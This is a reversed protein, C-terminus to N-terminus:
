ENEREGLLIVIMSIELVYVPMIYRIHFNQSTLLAFFVSSIFAYLIITELEKSFYIKRKNIIVNLFVYITIIVFLIEFYLIYMDTFLYHEGEMRTKTWEYNGSTNDFTFYYPSIMNKGFDRLINSIINPFNRRFATLVIKNVRHLDGDLEYLKEYPIKYNNPGQNSTIADEYTIVEKVDEPLYEYIQPLTTGIIREYLYMTVSPQSRKNDESTQFIKQAIKTSTIGLVLIAVLVLMKQINVKQKKILNIIIDIVIIGIIVFSLFYIRESRINSSIFMMILSLVAYKIKESKLYRMMYCIFLITFSTAISDSLISMNFHLNFPIFFIFLSYIITEYKSLKIKFTKELTNILTISAFLSIGLQIFYIIYTLNIQMVESLKQSLNLISPYVFPRYADLRMTKAIELYESTDGYQPIYKINKCIFIIGLIIQIFILIQIIQKCIKFIKEKNKM